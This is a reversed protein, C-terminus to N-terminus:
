IILNALYQSQILCMINNYDSGTIQSLRNRIIDLKFFEAKQNRSKKVDIWLQLSLHHPINGDIHHIFQFFVTGFVSHINCGKGQWFFPRIGGCLVKHLKSDM